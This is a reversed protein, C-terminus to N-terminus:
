VVTEKNGYDEVIQGGCYPCYTFQNDRPGGAFFHHHQGCSTAWPREGGGNHWVCFTPRQPKMGPAFARMLGKSMDM